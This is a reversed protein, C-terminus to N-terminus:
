RKPKKIAKRATTAKKALKPPRGVKKATAAKAMPAEKEMSVPCDGRDQQEALGSVATLASDMVWLLLEDIRKFKGSQMASSIAETLCCGVWKGYLDFLVPGTANGFFANRDMELATNMKELMDIDAETVQRM